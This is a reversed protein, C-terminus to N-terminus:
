LKGTVILLHGAAAKYLYELYGSKSNKISNRALFYNITNKRWGESEDGKGLKFSLKKMQSPKRTISSYHNNIM